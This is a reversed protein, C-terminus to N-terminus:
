EPLAQEQESSFANDFEKEDVSSGQMVNDMLLPLMTHLEIDSYQFTNFGTSRRLQPVPLDM